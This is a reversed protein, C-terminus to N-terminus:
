VAVYRTMEASECGTEPPNTKVTPSPAAGDSVTSWSSLPEFEPGAVETPNATARPAWYAAIATPSPAKM